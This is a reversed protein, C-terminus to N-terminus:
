FDKYDLHINILVDSSTKQLHHALPMELFDYHYFLFIRVISRGGLLGESYLVGDITVWM